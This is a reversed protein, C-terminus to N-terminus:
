CLQPEQPEAIDFVGQRGRVDEPLRSTATLFADQVPQCAVEEQLWQDVRKGGQARCWTRQVKVCLWCVQHQPDHGCSGVGEQLRFSPVVHRAAEVVPPDAGMPPNHFALAVEVM